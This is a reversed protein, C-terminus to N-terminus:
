HEESREALGVWCHGFPAPHQNRGLIAEVGRRAQGQDGTEGDGDACEAEGQETLRHAFGEVRTSPPSSIPLICSSWGSSATRLRLTVNLLRPDRGTRATSSTEKSIRGPWCRPKTPSDPLPFDTVDRAIM